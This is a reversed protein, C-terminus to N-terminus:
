VRLEVRDGIAVGNREFWGLNVEVAGLYPVGPSYRPCPDTRCPQMDVIAAIRGDAGWFAISLPILTDKMWFASTTEEEFLFVMGRDEPLQTRGMLGRAREAPEDAIEVEVGVSGGDGRIVLSASAPGLATGMRACATALLLVIVLPGSRRM